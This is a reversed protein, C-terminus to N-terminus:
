RANTIPKIRALRREIEACVESDTEERLADTLLSKAMDLHKDVFFREFPGGRWGAGDFSPLMCVFNEPYHDSKDLDVVAFRIRIKANAPPKYRSIRLKFNM